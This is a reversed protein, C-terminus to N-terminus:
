HYPVTKNNTTRSSATTTTAVVALSDKGITNTSLFNGSVVDTMVSINDGTHNVAVSIEPGM